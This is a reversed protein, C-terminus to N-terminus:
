YVSADCDIPSSAESYRQVGDIIEPWVDSEKEGLRCALRLAREFSNQAAIRAPFSKDHLIDRVLAPSSNETRGARDAAKDIVRAVDDWARAQFLVASVRQSNTAREDVELHGLARVTLEIEQVGAGWGSSAETPELLAEEIMNVALSSRLSLVQLERDLEEVQNSACAFLFALPLFKLKQPALDVFSLTLSHKVTRLSGIRKPLGERAKEPNCM